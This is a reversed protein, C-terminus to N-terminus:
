FYQHNLYCIYSIFHSCLDNDCSNRMINLLIQENTWALGNTWWKEVQKQIFALVEEVKDQPSFFKIVKGEPNVMFKGFNWPIVKATGTKPDFLESNNRLYVFLPHTNEGNVEVKEMVPFEVNFNKSVFEEIEEPSGSEQGFFQNCPFALIEFGKNKWMQHAKVMEKYNESTLGWKCAVNVVMILRRDRLSQFDITKGRIDKIQFDFFGKTPPAKLQEKGSKFVLKAILGGM